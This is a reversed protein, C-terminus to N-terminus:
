DRAWQVCWTLVAFRIINRVPLLIPHICIHSIGKNYISIWERHHNEKYNSGKKKNWCYLSKNYCKLQDHESTINYVYSDNNRVGMGKDCDCLSFPNDM